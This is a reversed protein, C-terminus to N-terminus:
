ATSTQAKVAQAELAKVKEEVLAVREEAARVRGETNTQQVKAEDLDSHLKDVLELTEKMM